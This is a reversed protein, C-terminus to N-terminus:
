LSPPLDPHPRVEVPLNTVIEALLDMLAEPHWNDPRYIADITDTIFVWQHRKIIIETFTVLISSYLKCKSNKQKYSSFRTLVNVFRSSLNFTKLVM